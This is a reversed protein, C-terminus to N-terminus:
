RNGRWEEYSMVDVRGLGRSERELNVREMDSVYGSYASMRETRNSKTQGVAYATAATVAAVGCGSLMMMLVILGFLRGVVGVRADGKKGCVETKFVM